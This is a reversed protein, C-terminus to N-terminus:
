IYPDVMGNGIALGEFKFNKESKILGSGIAPRINIILLNCLIVQMVTGQWFYKQIILTKINM